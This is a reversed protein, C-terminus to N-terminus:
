SSPVTLNSLFLLPHDKRIQPAHITGKDVILFLPDRGVREFAVVFNTQPFATETNFEGLLFFLAM